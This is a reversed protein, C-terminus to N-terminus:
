KYERYYTRADKYMKVQSLLQEVEEVQLSNLYKAQEEITHLGKRRSQCLQRIRKLNKVLCKKDEESLEKKEYVSKMHEWYEKCSEASEIADSTRCPDKGLVVVHREGDNGWYEYYYNSLSLIEKVLNM